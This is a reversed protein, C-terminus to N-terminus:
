RPLSAIGYTAFVAAETRYTNWEDPLAALTADFQDPHIPIQQCYPGRMAEFTALTNQALARGM